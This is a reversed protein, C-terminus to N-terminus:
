APIGVREAIKRGTLSDPEVVCEWLDGGWFNEGGAFNRGDSFVTEFRLAPFMRSVEKWLGVAPWWATQYGLDIETQSVSNEVIGYIGLRTGWNQPNPYLANIDWIREKQAAAAFRRIEDAPGTIVVRSFVHNPM